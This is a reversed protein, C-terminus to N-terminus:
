AFSLLYAGDKSKAGIVRLTRSDSYVGDKKCGEQLPDRPHRRADPRSRAATAPSSPSSAGGVHRWQCRWGAHTRRVSARAPAAPTACIATGAFAWTSHSVAAGRDRVCRRPVRPAALRGGEDAGEVRRVAVRLGHVVGSTSFAPSCHRANGRREGIPAREVRGCPVFRVWEWSM